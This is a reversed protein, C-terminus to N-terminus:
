DSSDYIRLERRAIEILKHLDDGSPMENLWTINTLVQGEDLTYQELDPNALTIDDVIEGCFSWAGGPCFHIIYTRGFSPVEGILWEPLNSDLRLNKRRREAEMKAAQLAECKSEIEDRYTHNRIIDLILDLQSATAHILGAEHLERKASRRSRYKSAHLVRALIDIDTEIEHKNM